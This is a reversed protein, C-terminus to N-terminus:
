DMLQNQGVVWSVQVFVCMVFLIFAISAVDCPCADLVFPSHMCLKMYAQLNVIDFDNCFILNTAIRALLIFFMSVFNQGLIWQLDVCHHCKNPHRNKITTTSFYFQQAYKKIVYGFSWIWVLQSITESSKKSIFCCQSPKSM